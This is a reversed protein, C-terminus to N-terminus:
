VSMEQEEKARYADIKDLLAASETSTAKRFFMKSANIIKDFDKETFITVGAPYEFFHTAALAELRVYKETMLVTNKVYPSNFVITQIYEEIPHHSHKFYHTINKERLFTEFVYKVCNYTLCYFESGFYVDNYTNNFYVKNKKRIPLFFFLYTLFRRMWKGHNFFWYRTIKKEAIRGQTINYASIFEKEPEKQLLALIRKNSFVPYDQGSLFFVREFAIGSAIMRKMLAIKSEVHSFDGWYVSYREEIFQVTDGMVDIINEFPEIAFKKDIHIFFYSDTASLAKVLRVLHTLDKHATILYAIKM